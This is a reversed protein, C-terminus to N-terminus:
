GRNCISCSAVLDSTLTVSCTCHSNKPVECNKSKLAVYKNVRSGCANYAHVFLIIFVILWYYYWPCNWVPLNQSVEQFHRHFHLQSTGFAFHEMTQPCCRLFCLWWIFIFDPSPHPPAQGNCPQDWLVNPRIRCCFNVYITQLWIM